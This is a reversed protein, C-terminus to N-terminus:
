KDTLSVKFKGTHSFANFHDHFPMALLMSLKTNWLKLNDELGAIRALWLVALADDPGQAMSIVFTGNPACDTPAPPTGVIASIHAYRAM